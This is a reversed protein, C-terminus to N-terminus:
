EIITDLFSARKSENCSIRESRLLSINSMDLLSIFEITTWAFEQHCSPCCDERPEAWALYRPRIKRQEIREQLARAGIPISFRDFQGNTEEHEHYVTNRPALETIALYRPHVLLEGACTPPVWAHIPLSLLNYGPLFAESGLSRYPYFSSEKREVGIPLLLHCQHLAELHRQQALEQDKRHLTTHM